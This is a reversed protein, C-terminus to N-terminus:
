SFFSPRFVVQLITPFLMEDSTRVNALYLMIRKTLPGYIAYRVFESSLIMQQLSKYFVIDTPPSRKMIAQPDGGGGGGAAAAQRLSGNFDDVFIESLRNTNREYQGFFDYGELNWCNIFNTGSPYAQLIEEMRELNVLPLSEHGLLIFYEWPIQSEVAEQMLGLMMEGTSLSGWAVNRSYIKLCNKGRSSCVRQIEHHLSPDSKIDLHIVYLHNNPTYISDFLRLFSTMVQNISQTEKQYIMIGLALQIAAGARGGPDHSPTPSPSLCTTTTIFLTIVTLSILLYWGIKGNLMKVGSKLPLGCNNHPLQLPLFFIFTSQNVKRQNCVIELESTAEMSFSLSPRRSVSFDRWIRLSLHCIECKGLKKFLTAIGSELQSM